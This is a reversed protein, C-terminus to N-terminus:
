AHPHRGQELKQPTIAAKWRKGRKAKLTKGDLKYTVKRAKGGSIQTTVLM